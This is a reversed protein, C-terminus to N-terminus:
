CEVSIDKSGEGLLTIASGDRVATTCPNFLPFASPPNQKPANSLAALLSEGHDCMPATGLFVLLPDLDRPLAYRSLAKAEDPLTDWSCGTLQVSVAPCRPRPLALRYQLQKLAIRDLHLYTNLKHPQAGQPGAPSAFVLIFDAENFAKMYWRTPDKTETNPIAFLDFLPDLHCSKKLYHHFEIM